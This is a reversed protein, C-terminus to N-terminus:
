QGVYSGRVTGLYEGPAGLGSTRRNGKFEGGTLVGTITDYIDCIEGAVEICLERGQVLSIPPEPATRDTLALRHWPGGGTCSQAPSDTLRVTLVPPPTKGAPATTVFRWIAGAHWERPTPQATLKKHRRQERDGDGALCVAALSTFIVLRTLM